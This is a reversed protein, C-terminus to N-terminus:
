KVVADNSIGEENQIHAIDTQLQRWYANMRKRVREGESTIAYYRRAPGSKSEKLQTTVLGSKRMRSLLPYITGESLALTDIGTLKKALDYAYVQGHSLTNLVCLELVGKRVQTTWNDVNFGPKDPAM